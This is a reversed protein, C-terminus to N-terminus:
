GGDDGGEDRDHLRQHWSVVETTLWAGLTVLGGALLPSDSEDAAYQAGGVVLLLATLLLLPLRWWEIKM